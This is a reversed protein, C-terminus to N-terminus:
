NNLKGPFEAVVRATGSVQTELLTLRQSRSVSEKFIYNAVPIKIMRSVCLILFRSSLSLMEGELTPDQFRMNIKFMVKHGM